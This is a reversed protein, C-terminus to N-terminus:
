PTTFSQTNRAAQRQRFWEHYAALRAEGQALLQDWPLSSFREVPEKEYASVIATNFFLDKAVLPVKQDGPCPVSFSCGGRTCMPLPEYPKGETVERGLQLLKIEALVKFVRNMKDHGLIKRLVDRKQQELASRCVKSAVPQQDQIVSESIASKSVASAPQDKKAKRKQMAAIVMKIRRDLTKSDAYAEVSKSTKFLLEELRQAFATQLEPSQKAMSAGSSGLVNSRTLRSLSLSVCAMRFLTLLTQGFKLAKVFRRYRSSLSVYLEDRMDRRLGQVLDDNVAVPAKEQVMGKLFGLAVGSMGPPGAVSLVPSPTNSRLIAAKGSQTDGNCVVSAKAVPTPSLGTEKLRGPRLSIAPPTDRGETVGATGMGLVFALLQNQHKADPASLDASQDLTNTDLRQAAAPQPSDNTDDAVQQSSQKPNM